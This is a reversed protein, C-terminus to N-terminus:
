RADRRYQVDVTHDTFGLSRYLHVAATSDAEVYLAATTAGRSRLRELGALMLRRGLGQGAADPHVGIVYIEGIADGPEIKLWNYGLICGSTRDRALLFDGADFWPESQRAELDALTLAGQEPHGAFVLANLTVWAANDTGPHFPGIETAAALTDGPDAAAPSGGTGAALPMRLQLLTRGATFGFRAALARAGPHDGHSWATLEGPLGPLLATLAATAHGRHRAAPRVVLDLEDLGTVVAGVLNGADSILLPTRRGASVDFLTQENFPHYGDAEEAEAAIRRFGSAVVADAPEPRDKLDPESRIFEM